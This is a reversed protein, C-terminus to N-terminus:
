NTETLASNMAPVFIKQRSNQKELKEKEERRQQMEAQSPLGRVKNSRRKNRLTMVVIVTVAVGGVLGVTLGVILAVDVESLGGEKSTIGFFTLHTTTFTVTRTAPDVSVLTVGSTMWSSTAEDYYSIVVNSTSSGVPLVVTVSIPSTLGSVPIVSTSSTMTVSIVSALNSLTTAQVPSTAWSSLALGVTSGSNLSLGSPLMSAFSAPLTVTVNGNAAANKVVAAITSCFVSMTVNTMAIQRTAQFKKMNAAALAVVRNFRNIVGTDVASASSTLANQNATVIAYLTSMAASLMDKTLGSQSASTGTFLSDLISLMRASNGGSLAGTVKAANVMTKLAAATKKLTAAHMSLTSEFGSFISEIATAKDADSLPATLRRPSHMGMLRRGTTGQASAVSLLMNASATLASVDGKSTATSIASRLASSAAARDTPTSVSVNFKYTAIAGNNNIYATILTKGSSTAPLFTLHSSSIYDTMLEVSFDDGEAVFFYSLVAGKKGAVIWKSCSLTFTTTAEVGFSPSASCSGGAPPQAPYLTISAKGSAGSASDNASYEFIYKPSTLYGPSVFLYPGSISVAEDNTMNLSGTTVTWSSTLSELDLDAFEDSITFAELLLGEDPALSSSVPESDDQYAVISLPIAKTIDASVTVTHVRSYTPCSGRSVLVTFVYTGPTNVPMTLTANNVSVADAMETPCESVDPSTACTWVFELEGCYKYPDPDVSGSADLVLQTGNAALTPAKLNITVASAKMGLFINKTDCETNNMDCVTLVCAYAFSSNLTNAPILLKAFGNSGAPVVYLEVDVDEQLAILRRAWESRKLGSWTYNLVHDPYCDSPRAVASLEIPESADLSSYEGVSVIPVVPEDQIHIQVSASFTSQWLNKATIGISVDPYDFNGGLDNYLDIAPFTITSDTSSALLAKIVSTDNECINGSSCQWEFSRTASDVQATVTINGTTCKSISVLSATVTASLSTYYYIGMYQQPSDAAHSVTTIASKKKNFIASPNLVVALGNSQVDALEMAANMFDPLIDLLSNGYYDYTWLCTAASGVAQLTSATLLDACNSSVSEDIAGSFQLSIMTGESNWKAATYDFATDATYSAAEELATWKQCFEVVGSDAQPGELAGFKCTKSQGTECFGCGNTSVCGGVDLSSPCGGALVVTALNLFGFVCLVVVSKM